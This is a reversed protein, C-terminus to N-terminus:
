RSSQVKGGVVGIRNRVTKEAVAQTPHIQELVGLPVRRMRRYLCQQVSQVVRDIQLQQGTDAPAPSIERGPQVAIVCVSVVVGAIRLLRADAGPSRKIRSEL